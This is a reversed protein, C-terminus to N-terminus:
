KRFPFENELHTFPFYLEGMGLQMLGHPKYSHSKTFKNMYYNNAIGMLTTM